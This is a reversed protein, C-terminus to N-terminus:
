LCEIIYVQLVFKSDVLQLIPITELGAEAAQNAHV